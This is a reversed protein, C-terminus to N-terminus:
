TLKHNLTGGSNMRFRGKTRNQIRRISDLPSLSHFFYRVAASRDRHTCRRILGVCVCVFM